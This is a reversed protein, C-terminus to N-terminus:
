ARVCSSPPSRPRAAPTAASGPRTRVVAPLAAAAGPDGVPARGTGTGSETLAAPMSLAPESAGARRLALPVTVTETASDSFGTPAETDSSASTVPESGDLALWCVCVAVTLAWCSRTIPWARPSPAFASPRALRAALTTAMDTEALLSASRAFIGPTTETM